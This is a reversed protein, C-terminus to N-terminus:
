GNLMLKDPTIDLLTSFIKRSSSIQYIVEEDSLLEITNNAYLGNDIIEHGKSAMLKVSRDDEAATIANVAFGAKIKHDELLEIAKEVM